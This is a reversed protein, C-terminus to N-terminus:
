LPAENKKAMQLLDILIQALNVAWYEGARTLYICQNDIRILGVKEWQTVVPGITAFLDTKYRASLTKCDCYGLEIQYSIDRFLLNNEDGGFGMALPKKGANVMKSYTKLDGELFFMYDGLWGGAGAGLPLCESRGRSFSNYLSRERSNQAWHTISLRQQHAAKMLDVGRQFYDAQERLTAPKPLTGKEIATNLAGGYFINLQYLDCGDLGLDLYTEIDKQWTELTQGPLGYILDIIITAKGADRLRTLTEILKEGSDRRGISKRIQSDFTQVGLSFRNIGADLAAAIKDKDFDHFRGEFTLECDNTLPFLNKISGVLRHIDPASLATPTGGGFYVAQFPRGYKVFPQAATEAMEKLLTDVYHRAADPKYINQFFGCFLCHGHCFPIHIYITRVPQGIHEASMMEAWAQELQDPELTENRPMAHVALKRDFAEHLPDDTENALFNQNDTLHMTQRRNSGLNLESSSDPTLEKEMIPRGMMEGKAKQVMELTVTAMGRNKAYSEVAKRAMIRVFPPVKKLATKAEPTWDM